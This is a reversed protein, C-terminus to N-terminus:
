EATTITEGGPATAWAVAVNKLTSGAADAHVTVAYTITVTEGEALSGTWRLSTGDLAPAAVARDGIRAEIDGTLTAHRLVQSLDDTIVVEDLGTEGTNVGTLTYTVVSGSAVATGSGPNSTKEFTFGPKGVPHETSSPPPTLEVGGPPVAVGSATNA